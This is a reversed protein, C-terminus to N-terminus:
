HLNRWRMLVDQREAESANQYADISQRLRILYLEASLETLRNKSIEM